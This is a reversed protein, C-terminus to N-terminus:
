QKVGNFKRTTQIRSGQQSFGDMLLTTDTKVFKTGSNTFTSTWNQTDGNEGGNVSRFVYLFQDSSIFTSDSRLTFHVNLLDYFFTDKNVIPKMNGEFGVLETRVVEYIGQFDSQELIKPNDEVKEKNCGLIFLLVSFLFGLLINRKM